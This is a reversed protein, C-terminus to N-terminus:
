AHQYPRFTFGDLDETSSRCLYGRVTYRKGNERLEFAAPVSFFTDPHATAYVTKPGWPTPCMRVGALTPGGAWRSYCAISGNPEAPRQEDFRFRQLGM